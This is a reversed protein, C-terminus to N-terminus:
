ALETQNSMEVINTRIKRIDEDTFGCIHKLYNEAGQYRSKIMELTALM